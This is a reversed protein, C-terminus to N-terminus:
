AQGPIIEAPLNNHHDILAQMRGRTNSDRLPLAGNGQALAKIIRTLSSCYDEINPRMTQDQQWLAFGHDASGNVVLSLLEVFMSKDSMLNAIRLYEGPIRADINGSGALSSVENLLKFGADNIEGGPTGLGGNEFKVTLDPNDSKLWDRLLTTGSVALRTLFTMEPENLEELRRRSLYKVKESFADCYRSAEGASLIEQEEALPELLPINQGINASTETTTM